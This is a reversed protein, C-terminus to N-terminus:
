AQEIVAADGDLRCVTIEVCGLEKNELHRGGGNRHRAEYLGSEINRIVPTASYGGEIGSIFHLVRLQESRRRLASRERGCSPELLFKASPFASAPCAVPCTRQSYPRTCPFSLSLPCVVLGYPIRCM